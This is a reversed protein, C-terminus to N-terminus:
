LEPGQQQVEYRQNPVPEMPRTWAPAIEQCGRGVVPAGEARAIPCDVACGRQVPCSASTYPPDFPAGSWPPARYWGGTPHTHGMLTSAAAVIGHNAACHTPTEAVLVSLQEGCYALDPHLLSRLYPVWATQLRRRRRVDEVEENASAQRAVVRCAVALADRCEAAPAVAPGRTRVDTVDLRM